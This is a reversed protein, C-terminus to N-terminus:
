KSRREQSGVPLARDIDLKIQNRLVGEFLKWALPIKGQVHLEREDYWCRVEYGTGALTAARGDDAWDVREIWGPFRSHIERIARQFKAHAADPTQGHEFSMDLRAMRFRRVQARPDVIRIGLCCRHRQDRSEAQAVNAGDSEAGGSFANSRWRPSSCYGSRAARKKLSTLWRRQMGGEGWTQGHELYEVFSVGTLRTLYAMTVAQVIGGAAFGLPNLKFLGALMSAAVEAVGMKLLAQAMKHGVNEVFEATLRVDYVTAMETLMRIQVAGVAMPGLALVPNAFATVATIWQHRDIIAMAQERRQRALLEREAHERMRARLLLNGARLADGERELVTAVRREFADLDPPEAELVTETTGDAKRVRVQVPAPAAAVAVIDDVPIVGALRERLKAMIAERDDETFRDKKNLVVMLRKGLRALEFVTQRDARTLDHDVVFVVLDARTALDIAEAERTLGEHGAEGLGPTDTLLM